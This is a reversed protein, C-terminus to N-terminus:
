DIPWLPLPVGLLVSFGFYIITGTGIILLVLLRLDRIGFLWVMVSTYIISTFLYGFINIAWVYLVISVGLFLQKKNIPTNRSSPKRTTTTIASKLVFPALLLLLILLTRIYLLSGQCQILSGTATFYYTGAWLLTAFVIVLVPFDIIIQRGNRHLKM